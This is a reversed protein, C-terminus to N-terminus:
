TITIRATLRLAQSLCTTAVTWRSGEKNLKGLIWTPHGMPIRGNGGTLSSVVPAQNRARDTSRGLPAQLVQRRWMM